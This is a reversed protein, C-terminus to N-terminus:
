KSALYIISPLHCYVVYLPLYLFSDAPLVTKTFNNYVINSWGTFISFNCDYTKHHKIHEKMSLLLGNKQCWSVVSYNQSPLMHSWRHALFMLHLCLISFFWFPRMSVWDSTLYAQWPIIAVGPLHIQQMFEFVNLKTIAAPQVHHIQFDKAAPGIIPINNMKENDFVIHFMGSNGEIFFAALVAQFIVNGISWGATDWLPSLMFWVGILAASAIKSPVIVDDEEEGPKVFPNKETFYPVHGIVSPFMKNM